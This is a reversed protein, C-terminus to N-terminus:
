TPVWALPPSWRARRGADVDRSRCDDEVVSVVTLTDSVAGAVSGGGTDSGAVPDAAGAELGPAGRPVLGDWVPAAPVPPPGAAVACGAGPEVPADASLPEGGLV